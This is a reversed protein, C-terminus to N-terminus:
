SSTGTTGTSLMAEAVAQDLSNITARDLRVEIVTDARELTSEVSARGNRYVVSVIVATGAELAEGIEQRLGSRLEHEAFSAVLGGVTAGVLVALGLPPAFLGFLLGVGAGMGAGMRGHRNAAEVVEPHGDANKTVLAAGRLELGHKLRCELDGFDARASDLNGYTAVLVLEHDDDM